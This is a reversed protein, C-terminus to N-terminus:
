EESFVLEVSSLPWRGLNFEIPTGMQDCHISITRMLPTRHSLQLAEAEMRRAFGGSIRTEVRKYNDIEHARYVEAVSQNVGYIGEFRPFRAAPFEKTTLYVPEDHLLRVRELVIVQANRHLKLAEAAEASVRRRELSLTQTAIQDSEADLSESFRRNSSMVYRTPHQRVFVGVGKRALLQGEQQMKTLAKRMTVRSVDFFDALDNESPLRAGAVLPGSACADSLRDYIQLWIARTRKDGYPESAIERIHELDTDDVSAINLPKNM